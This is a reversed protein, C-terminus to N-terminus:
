CIPGCANWTCTVFTGYSMERKAQIAGRGRERDGEGQKRSPSRMPPRWTVSMISVLCDHITPFRLSGGIRCIGLPHAQFEYPPHLSACDVAQRVRRIEDARRLPRAESVDGIFSLASM